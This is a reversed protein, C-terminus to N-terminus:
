TSQGDPLSLQWYSLLTRGTQESAASLVAWEEVIWDQLAVQERFLGSEEEICRDYDLMSRIGACVKDNRLWLAPQGDHENEDLGIDQWITDDVDLKWLGDPPIVEPAVAGAPAHEIDIM